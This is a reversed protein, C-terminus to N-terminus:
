PVGPLLRHTKLLAAVSTTTSRWPTNAGVPISNAGTVGSRLSSVRLVPRAGVMGIRTGAPAAATAAVNVTVPPAVAPKRVAYGHPVAGGTTDFTLQCGPSVTAPATNTGTAASPVNQTNVLEGTSTITSTVPTNLAVLVNRNVGTVGVRMTSVLSPVPPHCPWSPMPWVM